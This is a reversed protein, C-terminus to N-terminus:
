LRIIITITLRNGIELIVRIIIVTINNNNNNSKFQNHYFHHKHKHNYHNNHNNHAISADTSQHQNASPKHQQCNSVRLRYTM